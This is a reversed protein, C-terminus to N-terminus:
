YSITVKYGKDRLEKISKELSDRRIAIVNIRLECSGMPAIHTYRDVYIYELVLGYKGLISTIDLMIQPTDKIVLSIAARRGERSAKKEIIYALDSLEINGGTILVAVNDDKKTAVKHYLLAALGAAGSPEVLIKKRELLLLLTAAIENDSVTVIEKQLNEKIINFPKIGPHKAVLGDAITDLKSITTPKGNKISAIMSAAGEPEVGVVKINKDKLAILTSALLSGSGVPVLITDINDLEGVVEKALTGSGVILEEDEFSNIMVLDNVKRLEGARQFADDYTNGFLECKVNYREIADIKSKKANKPLVITCELNLLNAMYAVALGHNGTSPTVIGKERDEPKLSLLRNAAGRLKFSGTKQFNELKLYVNCGCLDDLIGGKLIETQKIYGRIRDYAEEISDTTITM